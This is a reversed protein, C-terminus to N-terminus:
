WKKKGRKNLLELLLLILLVLFILDILPTSLIPQNRHKRGSPISKRSAESTSTGGGGGSSETATFQKVAYAWQNEYVGRAKIKFYYTGTSPVLLTLQTDWSQQPQIFHTGVQYDVDDGGGCPNNYDETICYVYYFDSGVNGMNKIRVLATITPITNDTISLIEVDAPSSVVEWYDNLFVIRGSYNVEIITEYVGAVASSLTTYTYSYVGTETLNMSDSILLNNMSDYIKITPPTTLNTPNFEYDFVNLKAKYDQGASIKPFDSLIIRFNNTQSERINNTTLNVFNLTTNLDIISDNISLLYDCVKNNSTSCNWYDWLVDFDNILTDFYGDWNVFYTDNWYYFTLNWEPFYVQQNNLIQNLLSMIGSQNYDTLTRNTYNWVAEAIETNDVSINHVTNNIEILYDCVENNSGECSWYDWLLDWNDDLSLINNNWLAFYTDNWYYFTTNWDPFYATQNNLIAQLMSIITSQNYDTLTRNEYTWVASDVDSVSENLSTINTQTAWWEEDSLVRVLSSDKMNLQPISMQVIFFGTENFVYPYTYYRTGEIKEMSVNSLVEVGDSARIITLYVPYASERECASMITINSGEKITTDKPYVIGSREVLMRGITATESMFTTPYEWIESALSGFPFSAIPGAPEGNVWVEQSTYDIQASWISIDNDIYVYPQSGDSKLKIVAYQPGVKEAPASISFTIWQDCYSEDPFTWKATPQEDSDVGDIYIEPMEYDSGDFYDCDVYIMGIYTVLDGENLVDTLRFKHSEFEEGEIKPELRLAFNEDTHTTDDANTYNGTKHVEGYKYIIWDNNETGNRKTFRIKTQELWDSRYVDWIETTVDSYVINHFWDACGDDIDITFLSFAGDITINHFYNNQSLMDGSYFFCGQASTDTPSDTSDYYINKMYVNYIENGNTGSLLVGYRSNFVTGNYIENNSALYIYIGYQGQVWFNSVVNGSSQSLELIFYPTIGVIENITFDNSKYFVFAGDGWSWGSVKDMCSAIKEMQGGKRYRIYFYHCDHILVGKLIDTHPYNTTSIKSNYGEFYAPYRMHHYRVWYDRWWRMHYIYVEARNNTSSISSDGYININRRVLLVRGTAERMYSLTTTLTITTENNASDYSLSSIEYFRHDRQFDNLHRTSSYKTGGISLEDGVKWEDTVDGEVIIQNAGKNADYKLVAYWKEIPSGYHEIKTWSSRYGYIGARRSTGECNFYWNVTKDAPIPNEESDGIQWAVRDGGSIYMRGKVEVTVNSTISSPVYLKGTSIVWLSGKNNYSDLRDKSPSTPITVYGVTWDQDITLEDTIVFVDSDTPTGTTDSYIIRFAYDSVDSHWSSWSSDKSLQLYLTGSGSGVRYIKFRYQNSTDLPYSTNFKFNAMYKGYQKEPGANVDNPFNLTKDRVSTWTSGGDTSEELEVKIDRNYDASSSGAYLGLIVGQLNVNNSPTFYIYLPHSSARIEMYGKNSGEHNFPWLYNADYEINDARYWTCNTSLTCSSNQVWLTASVSGSLFIVMVVLFGFFIKNRLVKDM